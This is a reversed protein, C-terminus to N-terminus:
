EFGIEYSELFGKNFTYKGVFKPSNDYRANFAKNYDAIIYQFTVKTGDENKRDIFDPEGQIIRFRAMTMGLHINRGTDFSEKDLRVGKENIEEQKEVRIRSWRAYSSTPDLQLTILQKGDASQFQVPKDHEVSISSPYKELFKNISFSDMLSFTGASLDPMYYKTDALSLKAYEPHILRDSPIGEETFDNEYMAMEEEQNEQQQRQWQEEAAIMFGELMISIGKVPIGILAVALLYAMLSKGFNFTYVGSERYYVVQTGAIYDGLRREGLILIAMVEIPWLPLFANRVVLQFPSATLGSRVDVVQMNIARKGPGRGEVMDKSMYLGIAMVFLVYIHFPPLVDTLSQPEQGIQGIIHYIMFPSVMLGIIFTFVIHDIFAGGLRELRHPKTEQLAEM